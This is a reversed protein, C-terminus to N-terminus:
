LWCGRRGRSLETPVRASSPAPSPTGTSATDQSPPGLLRRPPSLFLNGALPSWPSHPCLRADQQGPLTPLLHLAASFPFEKHASISFQRRRSWSPTVWPDSLIRGWRAALPVRLGGTSGYPSPCVSGTEKPVGAMFGRGVGPSHLVHRCVHVCTGRGEPTGCPALLPLGWTVAVACGRPGPGRSFFFYIEPREQSSPAGAGM